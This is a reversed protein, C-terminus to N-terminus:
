SLLGLRSMGFCESGYSCREDVQSYTKRSRVKHCSYESLVSVPLGRKLSMRSRLSGAGLQM